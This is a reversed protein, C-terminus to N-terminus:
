HLLSSLDETARGALLGPLYGDVPDGGGRSAVLGPLYGDQVRSLHAAQAAVVAPMWGDVLDGHATPMTPATTAPASTMTSVVFVAAIVAASFAAVIGVATAHRQPHETLPIPQAVISRNVQSV